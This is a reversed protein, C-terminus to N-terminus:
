QFTDIVWLLFDEIGCNAASSLRLLHRPGTSTGIVTRHSCGLPSAMFASACALSTLMWPPSSWNKSASSYGITPESIFKVIKKGALLSQRAGRRDASGFVARDKSNGEFQKEGTLNEPAQCEPHPFRS